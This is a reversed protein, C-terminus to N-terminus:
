KKVVDNDSIPIPYYLTIVLTYGLLFLMPNITLIYDKIIEMNKFHQSIQTRAKKKDFFTIMKDVTTILTLIWLIFTSGIIFWTLSHSYISKNESVIVSMLAPWIIFKVLAVSGCFQVIVFLIFKITDYKKDLYYENQVKEFVVTLKSFMLMVMLYTVNNKAVKVFSNTDELHSFKWDAFSNLAYYMFVLLVLSQLLDIIVHSAILKNSGLGNSDTDEEM